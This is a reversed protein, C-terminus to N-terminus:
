PVRAADACRPAARVAPCCRRWSSSGPSPCIASRADDALMARLLILRQRRGIPVGGAAGAQKLGSILM